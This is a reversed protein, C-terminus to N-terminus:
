APRLRDPLGAPARRSAVLGVHAPYIVPHVGQECYWVRSVQAWVGAAWSWGGHGVPVGTTAYMEQPDLEVYRCFRYYDLKGKSDVDLLRSLLMTEAETVEVGIESLVAQFENVTVRGTLHPDKPVFRHKLDMHQSVWATTRVRNRLQAEAPTLAARLGGGGGAVCGHHTGTGTAKRLCSRCSLAAHRVSSSRRTVLMAPKWRVYSPRTTSAATRTWPLVWHHCCPYCRRSWEVAAILWPLWRRRRLLPLSPPAGRVEKELHCGIVRLARQLERVPLRTERGPAMGDQISDHNLHRFIEQPKIGSRAVAGRVRAAVAHSFVPHFCVLMTMPPSSCPRMLRQARTAYGAERSYPGSGTLLRVFLSYEVRTGDGPFEDDDLRFQEM